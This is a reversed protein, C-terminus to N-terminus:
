PKRQGIKGYPIKEGESSIISMKRLGKTSHKQGEGLIRNYV